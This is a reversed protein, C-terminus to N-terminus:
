HAIFAIAEMDSYWIHRRKDILLHKETLRQRAWCFINARSNALITEIASCHLNATTFTTALRKSKARSIARAFLCQSRLHQHQHYAPYPPITSSVNALGNTASVLDRYLHVWSICIIFRLDTSKGALFLILDVLLSGKCLPTSPHPTCHHFPCPERTGAHQTEFRIQKLECELIPEPCRLLSSSGHSEIDM